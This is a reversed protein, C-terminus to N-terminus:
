ARRRVFLEEKTAMDHPDPAAHEDSPVEKYFKGAKMVMNIRDHDQLVTIDDIPNGDVLIMDAYYGPQVKGLEDPQLMIQGGLATASLIAEMPTMGIREVFHQLDRAYTGHPTWAFGCDGGPLVRIGRQKM